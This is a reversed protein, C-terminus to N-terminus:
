SEKASRVHFATESSNEGGVDDSVAPQHARVLGARESRKLANPSLEDVALDCFMLSTDDFESAIPDQRFERTHHAGHRTSRFNLPSYLLSVRVHWQISADLTTNAPLETVDDNFTVVDVAVAHIDGCAQFANGLRAADGNG